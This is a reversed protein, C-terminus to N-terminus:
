GFAASASRVSHKVVCRQLKRLLLDRDIHQLVSQDIQPVEGLKAMILEVSDTDITKAPRRM